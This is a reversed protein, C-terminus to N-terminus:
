KNAKFIRQSDSDIYVKDNSDANIDGFGVKSGLGKLVKLVREGLAGKSNTIHVRDFGKDDSVDVSYVTSNKIEIFDVNKTGVVELGKVDSIYTDNEINRKLNDEELYMGNPLKTQSSFILGDCKEYSVKTGNKFDVVYHTKGFEDALVSKTKVESKKLSVGGFQILDNELGTTM